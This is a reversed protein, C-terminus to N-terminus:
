IKKITSEESKDYITILFVEYENPKVEAVSYTIVRFGGSKGKGKDASALRIKYLGGGLNEGLEHNNQLAESLNLLEAKLAPFKKVLRKYRAEFFNTPTIKNAM